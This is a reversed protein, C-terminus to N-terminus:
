RGGRTIRRVGTTAPAEVVPALKPAAATREAHWARVAAVDYRKSDGVRVYPQGEHDLRDVTAVSVGLLRGLERRDVLPEAKVPVSGRAALREAIADALANLLGGLDVPPSPVTVNQVPKSGRVAGQEDAEGQCSGAALKAGNRKM